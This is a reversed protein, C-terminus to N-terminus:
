LADLIPEDTLAGTFLSALADAIMASFPRIARRRLREPLPATQFGAIRRVSFPCAPRAVISSSPPQNPTELASSNM